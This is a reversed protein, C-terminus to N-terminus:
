RTQISTLQCTNSVIYMSHLAWFRGAPPVRCIGNGLRGKWPSHRVCDPQLSGWYSSAAWTAEGEGKRERGETTRTKRIENRGLVGTKRTPKFCSGLREAGEGRWIEGSM